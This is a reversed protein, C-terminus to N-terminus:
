REHTEDRDFYFGGPLRRRLSRIRLLAEERGTARDVEFRRGAKVHVEIEDGEKLALAKVVANPLRIALSNGWKSVHM